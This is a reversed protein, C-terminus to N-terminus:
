LSKLKFYNIKFNSTRPIKKLRKIIFMNQNLNVYESIEKKLYEINAKKTEIFISIRNNNEVCAVIDVYKKLFNEVDNLNIKQSNIKIFKDARGIIEYNSNKKIKVIDNTNIVYNNKRNKALDKQKEAYGIMVNKGYYYLSGQSEEKNLIKGKEDKVFLKGGLVPSSLFKINQKKNRFSSYGIRPSAETQGYMNFFNFSNKKAINCIDKLTNTNIKGGAVAMFKIKNLKLSKLNIRKIFDFNQPVGYFCTARVKKTLSWFKKDLISYKSIYIESNKSFHTNFISLGYSYHLPLNLIVKDNEDIKLYKCIQKTNIDINQKSLMVFKSPGTTGSTSLLLKLNKNLKISKTNTLYIKYGFIVNLPKIKKKSIKSNRPIIVYNPAFKLILDDLNKQKINQDLIFFVADSRILSVYFFLFNDNNESFIFILPRKLNLCQIIKKSKLDIDSASYSKNKFFLIKKKM